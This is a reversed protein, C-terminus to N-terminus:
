YYYKINPYTICLYYVSMDRDVDIGVDIGIWLDIYM